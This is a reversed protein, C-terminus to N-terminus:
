PGLRLVQGHLYLWVIGEDDAPLSTDRVLRHLAGTALEEALWVAEHRDEGPRKALYAFRTDPLDLHSFLLAVARRGDKEVICAHADRLEGAGM